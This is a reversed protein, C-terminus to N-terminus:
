EKHLLSYYYIWQIKSIFNSKPVCLNGQQKFLRSSYGANNIIRDVEKRTRWHEGSYPDPARINTISNFMLNRRGLLLNKIYGALRKLIWLYTVIHENAILVRTNNTNGVLCEDINKFLQAVFENPCHHFSACLVVIDVKENLKFNQFTGSISEVKEEPVGFHNLIYKNSLRRNDSPEILFVKSVRPHLAMIASTWGVGGGVDAIVLGSEKRDNMLKEFAQEFFLRFNTTNEIHNLLRDFSEQSEDVNWHDAIKENIFRKPINENNSM